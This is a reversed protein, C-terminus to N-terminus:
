FKEKFNKIVFCCFIVLFSFFIIPRFDITRFRRTARLNSVGTSANLTMPMWISRFGDLGVNATPGAPRAIAHKTCWTSSPAWLGVAGECDDGLVGVFHQSRMNSPLSASGWEAMWAPCSLLVSPLILAMLEDLLFFSILAMLQSIESHIQLM